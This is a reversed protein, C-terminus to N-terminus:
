QCFNYYEIHSKGCYRDLLRAKLSKECSGDFPPAQAELVTRLIKQLDKKIYEAVLLKSPGVVTPDVSVKDHSSM